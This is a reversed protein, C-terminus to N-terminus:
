SRPPEAGPRQGGGFYKGRFFPNATCRCYMGKPPISGNGKLMQTMHQETRGNPAQSGDEIQMWDKAAAGFFAASAQGWGTTQFGAPTWDKLGTKRMPRPSSLVCAKARRGSGDVFNSTNQWHTLGVRCSNMLGTTLTPQARRAAHRRQRGYGCVGHREQPLATGCRRLDRSQDYVGLAKTHLGRQGPQDPRCSRELGSRTQRSSMLYAMGLATKSSASSLVLQAPAWLVDNQATTTM